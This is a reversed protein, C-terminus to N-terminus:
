NTETPRPAECMSCIPSFSPPNVFTCTPCAWETGKSEKKEEAPIGLYDGLNGRPPPKYEREDEGEEDWEGEGEYKLVDPDVGFSAKHNKKLIFKAQNTLAKSSFNIDKNDFISM